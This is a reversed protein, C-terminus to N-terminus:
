RLAGEIVFTYISKPYLKVEFLGENGRKRIKLIENHQKWDPASDGPATSTSVL